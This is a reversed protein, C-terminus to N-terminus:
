QPCEEGFYAREAVRRAKIAGKLTVFLGLHHNTRNVTIQARWPHSRSLHPAYQVGRIGSHNNRNLRKRNVQNVSPTVVRLNARRNDLKDGNIHDVHARPPPAMLFRHLLRPQSRGNMWTSFYVYGTNGRYLTLGAVHPVDSEDILTQFGHPLDLLRPRSV